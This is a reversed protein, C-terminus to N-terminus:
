SLELTFVRFNLIRPDSAIRKGGGDVHLRFENRKGAEVPLLIKVTRRGQFFEAGLVSGATDLTKLVFGRDGVGPGPELFISLEVLGERPKEIILQADNDVWRFTEQKFSELEGWGSGLQLGPGRVIDHVGSKESEFGVFTLRAGVSRTDGEPLDQSRSFVLGIRRKGAGQTVPTLLEFNGAALQRRAIERGDIILSAETQFDTKGIEPITGRILLFQTDAPQELSFSAAAATWGDPYIGNADLQPNTLDKPVDNLRSPPGSGPVCSSLIILINM